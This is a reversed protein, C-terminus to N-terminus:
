DRSYRRKEPMSTTSSSSKASQMRAAAPQMRASGRKRQNRPQVTITQPTAMFSKTSLVEHLRCFHNEPTKLSWIRNEYNYCSDPKALPYEELPDELLNYFTCSGMETNDTCLVKYTANRAAALQQDNNLPNVTETLLYDTNPNRLREASEFLLPALSISDVAVLGNGARNPVTKPIDLGALELITSFLDVNHIPEDSRSDAKIGPGRISMSVRVGSEYVTGKGRGQRTIYMNDIFERQPGFMWTGNDGLYIVYTNPDLVDVADLVKGILTDMSNTMARMLAESSCAGVIASGFTGGCDEMEKRSIEDLTDINPVIMPNPQQNATIHSLNYALWTFWPKDPNESEQKTIWEIADATKVVAAYTTPAIGPLSRIPAQQTRYRNPADTSEQIHYDWNWYTAIGGSLNGRYLDFGAEKPKMGTYVGLGALHWKGFVATSYGGKEKLDWVFSHQNQTVYDSYDLVGTKAAYLGTLLSARTPSCYPQTWTQTFV